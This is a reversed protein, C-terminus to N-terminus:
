KEWQCMPNRTYIVTTNQAPNNVHDTVTKLSFIGRFDITRM